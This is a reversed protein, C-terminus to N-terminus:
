GGTAARYRATEEATWNGRRWIGGFLRILEPNELLRAEISGVYARLWAATWADEALEPGPAPMEVLHQRLRAGPTLDTWVGFSAAGTLHAITAHAPSLRVPAGFFSADVLDGGFREDPSAAVVVGRRLKRAMRVLQMGRGRAQQARIIEVHPLPRLQRATVVLLLPFGARMLGLLNVLEPGIHSVAVLVPRGAERTRELPTWDIPECVQALAREDPRCRVWSSMMQATLAGYDVQRNWAAADAPAAARLIRERMPNAIRVEGAVDHLLAAVDGLGAGREFLRDCAGRLPGPNLAAAFFRSAALLAGRDDGTRHGLRSLMVAPARYRPASRAASRLLGAAPRHLRLALALKGLRTRLRHRLPVQAADLTGLDQERLRAPMRARRAM